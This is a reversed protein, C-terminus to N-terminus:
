RLNTQTRILLHFEADKAFFASWSQLTKHSLRTLM